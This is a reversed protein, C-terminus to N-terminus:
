KSNIVTIVEEILYSPTSAGATIGITNCNQLMTCNIDLANEIGYTNSCENKCIELLKRTNSSYSSGIVFMCDVQKAIKAAEEQRAKTANCITDIYEFDYENEKLYNIIDQVVQRKFTTQSVVFYKCDKKLGNARLESLDSMILCENNAWGNIGVIEPHGENGILIIKYGLEYHKEVLRHIKKVYPCTADVISIDNLKAKEYIAKGVGHSRIILNKIDKNINNTSYIGKKELSHVVAENHIIPGFTYTNPKDKNEFALQVAREVGFCFGATKAVIIEM